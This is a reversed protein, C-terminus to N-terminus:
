LGGVVLSCDSGGDMIDRVLQHCDLETRLVVREWGRDGMMGM